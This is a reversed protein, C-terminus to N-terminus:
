ADEDGNISVVGVPHIVVGVDKFHRGADEIHEDARPEPQQTPLSALKGLSENAECEQDPSRGVEEVIKRQCDFFIM